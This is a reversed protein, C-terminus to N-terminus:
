VNDLQEVFNFFVPRHPNPLWNALVDCGCGAASFKLSVLFYDITSGRGHRTRCTYAGSSPIAVNAGFLKLCDSKALAKPHMQFDAGFLFPLPRHKHM